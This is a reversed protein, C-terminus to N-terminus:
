RSVSGTRRRDYWVRSDGYPAYGLQYEFRERPVSRAPITFSVRLPEGSAGDAGGTGDADAADVEGRYVPDVSAVLNAGGGVRIMFRAPLRERSVLEVAGGEGGNGTGPAEEADPLLAASVEVRGDDLRQTRVDDFRPFLTRDTAEYLAQMRARWHANIEELECDIRGLTDAWFIAPALRRPVEDSGAARLFDGFARDGCVSLFSDSWLDGLSYYLDPDFREAFGPDILDEFRIEQRQWAM